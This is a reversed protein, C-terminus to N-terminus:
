RGAEPDIPEALVVKGGKRLRDLAAQREDAPVHLVYGNAATPGDVLRAGVSRLTERMDKESTEPRFMVVVNGSPQVSAAGLVHYPGPTVEPPRAAVVVVLLAGAVAWGIWPAYAGGQRSARRGLGELWSRLGPRRPSEELRRRMRSWNVDVDVPLRAVEPALRRLFQVESRCESCSELHTLVKAQEEPDLKGTVHWPLLHQLDRHRNADLQIIRGM